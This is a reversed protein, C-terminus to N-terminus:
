IEGKVATHPSSFFHIERGGGWGWQGQDSKQSFFWNKRNWTFIWDIIKKENKFFFFVYNNENETVPLFLPRLSSVCKKNHSGKHNNKNSSLSTSEQWIVWVIEVLLSQPSRLSCAISFLPHISPYGCFSLCVSLCVRPIFFYMSMENRFNNQFVIVIVDCLM